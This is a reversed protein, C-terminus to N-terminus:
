IPAASFRREACAPALEHHPDEDDGVSQSKGSKQNRVTEHPPDALFPRFLGFDEVHDQDREHGESQDRAAGDHGHSNSSRTGSLRFQGNAEERQGDGATEYEQPALGVLPRVEDAFAGPQRVVGPANRLERCSEKYNGSEVPKM